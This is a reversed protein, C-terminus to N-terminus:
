IGSDKTTDISIALHCYGKVKLHAAVDVKALTTSPPPSTLAGADHRRGHAPLVAHCASTGTM